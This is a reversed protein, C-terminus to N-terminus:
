ANCNRRNPDVQSIVTAPLQMQDGVLIMQKVGKMSTVVVTEAEVCQSAEDVIVCQFPKSKLLIHRGASSVTSFVLRAHELCKEQMWEKTCRNPVKPFTVDDPMAALADQLEHMLKAFGSASKNNTTSVENIQVGSSERFCRLMDDAVKSESQMVEDLFRRVLMSCKELVSSASTFRSPLDNGLVHCHDLFKGALLKLKKKLFKIFSLGGVENKQTEKYTEYQMTSSRLFELLSSTSASWGCVPSLADILRDVRWDLFVQGLPGDLDLRDENGILVLDGLQVCDEGEALRYLACFQGFLLCNNSAAPPNATFFGLFQLIM